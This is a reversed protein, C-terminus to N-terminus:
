PIPSYSLVPSARLLVGLDKAGTVLIAVGLEGIVGIHFPAIFPTHRYSVGGVIGFGASGGTWIDVGGRLEVGLEQWAYGVRLQGGFVGVAGSPAKVMGMSQPLSPALPFWAAGLFGM